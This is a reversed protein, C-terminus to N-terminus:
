DKVELGEKRPDHKWYTPHTGHLELHDNIDKIATM